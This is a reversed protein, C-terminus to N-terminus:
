DHLVWGFDLNDNAVKQLIRVLRGPQLFPLCYTPHNMVTRFDSKYTDLQTRLNYYEEIETEREIFLADRRKQYVEIERSLEPIKACNQFQFFSSELMYEATFGEVRMLNLIM